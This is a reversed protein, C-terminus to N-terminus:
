YIVNKTMFRAQKRKFIPDAGLKLGLKVKNLASVAKRPLRVDAAAINKM